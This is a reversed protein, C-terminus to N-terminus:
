LRSSYRRTAPNYNELPPVQNTVVNRIQCAEINCNKSWGCLLRLVLTSARRLFQWLAQHRTLGNTGGGDITILAVARNDRMGRDITVAGDTTVSPAGCQNVTRWFANVDPALATSSTRARGAGTPVLKRTGHIEM